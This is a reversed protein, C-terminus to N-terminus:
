EESGRLCLLSYMQRACLFHLRELDVALPHELCLQAILPLLCSCTWISIVALKSVPDGLQSWDDPVRSVLGLDAPHNQGAVGARVAVPTM